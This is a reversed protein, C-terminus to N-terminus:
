IVVLGVWSVVSISLSGIRVRCQIEQIMTDQMEKIEQIMTDRTDAAAIDQCISEQTADPIWARAPPPFPFLKLIEFLVMEIRVCAHNLICFLYFYIHLMNHLLPMGIFVMWGSGADEKM